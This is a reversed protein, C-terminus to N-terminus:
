HTEFLEQLGDDELGAAIGYALLIRAKWPVLNDAALFGHSLLRRRAVVRGSGVRTSICIVTGSARARELAAMEPETAFGAGMGAVVMGRAGAAVAADILAGDSGVYSVVVDVRPMAGLKPLAIPCDGGHRRLHRHYFAIRGDADAYALPGLDRGTFADVRYTSGKTVDRASYVRDNLLVLVGHRRAAPSAAVQIARLLNLDGDSGLASSPRMAGVFVIPKPSGIGIHAAYAFEELSNTGRTVVVGDVMPEAAIQALARSFEVVGDLDSRPGSIPRATIQLDAIGEIEPIRDILQEATLRQGTEQYQALDLRDAGVADITGRTVVVAVKARRGRDVM